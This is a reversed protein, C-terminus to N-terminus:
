ALGREASEAGGGRGELGARDEQRRMLELAAGADEAVQRVGVVPSAGCNASASSPLRVRAPHQRRSCCGPRTSVVPAAGPGPTAHSIDAPTCGIACRESM